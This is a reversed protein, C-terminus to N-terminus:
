DASVSPPIWGQAAFRPRLQDAIGKAIDRAKGHITSSGTQEGHVKVGTSVILGLPNKTALAVALPVAAGPSKGASTDLKGAGVERLGDPTMRFGEVAVKLEAAGKGMGIAVREAASGEVVSLLTGHIVLDNVEVPPEGSVQEAPLGMGDIQAVLAKAVEAGIERGLAIQEATQPPTAAAEGALASHAPVDEPTAVFDYVWIHQPRPVKESVLIERDSVQVKACAAIAIVAVASTLFGRQLNM